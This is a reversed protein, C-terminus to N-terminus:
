GWAAAHRLLCISTKRRAARIPGRATYVTMELVDNFFAGEIHHNKGHVDSAVAGGVTIYKTGPTM